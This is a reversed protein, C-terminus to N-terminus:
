IDKVGLICYGEKLGEWEELIYIIEKYAERKTQQGNKYERLVLQDKVKFGRDNKRLEFNKIGRLVDEFFTSSIKLFHTQPVNGTGNRSEAHTGIDLTPKEHKKGKYNIDIFDKCYTTKDNKEPCEQFRKCNFCKSVQTEPNPSFNIKDQQRKEDEQEPEPMAGKIDQIEETKMQGKIQEDKGEKRQKIEAYTLIGQVKMEEYLDKQDDIKMGALEVAASFSLKGEELLMKLEYLLNKNINDLNAIKTQSVNLLTAMVKRLKSNELDVGMIKKKQKKLSQLCRKLEKAEQLMEKQSKTRYSNSIILELKETDKDKQTRIQCAVMEFEKHGNKVLYVLAKWRTEGSILKYEGQDGPAYVVVLPELLGMMLIENAKKEIEMQEYFNEKNAYIRFISINKVEFSATPQEIDKTSEENLGNFISFGM